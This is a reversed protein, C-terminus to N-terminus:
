FTFTCQAVSFSLRWPSIKSSISRLRTASESPLLHLSYSSSTSCARVEECLLLGADEHQLQAAPSPGTVDLLLSFDSESQLSNLNSCSANQLSRM